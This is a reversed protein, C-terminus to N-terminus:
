EYASSCVPCKNDGPVNQMICLCVSCVYGIELIKKTVFCVASYDVNSKTAVNVLKRVSPEVLFVSIFFHILGAEDEERFELYAGGTFESAQQLFSRPPGFNAVDLPVRLKQATFITNMTSIYKSGIDESSASVVLIHGRTSPNERLHRNLHSLALSLPGSVSAVGHTGGRHADVIQKSIATLMSEDFGKFQRIMTGNLHVQSQPDEESSNRSTSHLIRAGMSNFGLIALNNNSNLALHANVFVTLNELVTWLPIQSAHLWGDSHLDIVVVLFSSAETQSTQDFPAGNLLQARTDDVSDM